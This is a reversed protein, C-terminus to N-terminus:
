SEMVKEVIVMHCEPTDRPRPKTCEWWCHGCRKCRWGKINTRQQKGFIDTTDRFGTTEVPNHGPPKRPAPPKYRPCSLKHCPGDRVSLAPCYGCRFAV